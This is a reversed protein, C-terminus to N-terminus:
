KEDSPRAQGSAPEAQDAADEDKAQFSESVSGNTVDIMQGPKLRRVNAGSPLVISVGSRRSPNVRLGEPTVQGSYVQSGNVWSAHNGSSRHVYGGLRVQTVTPTIVEPAETQPTAEVTEPSVDTEGPVFNARLANLNERQEPTTFLRGLTEQAGVAPAISLLAILVLTLPKQRRM